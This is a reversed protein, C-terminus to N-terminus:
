YRNVRGSIMLTPILWLVLFALVNVPALSNFAQVATLYYGLALGVLSAVVSLIASTRVTAHLRRSGVIAEAYSEVSDRSLLATLTSAHELGPETLEIRREIPPYEMREVPLKLKQRVMSPTVNFDRPVLVPILQAHLLSLVAPRVSNTKAYNFVFIGEVVGNISCFIANKAKVDQRPPVDMLRMFDATGVMVREGRIIGSLGGAEHCKFDEVQRYFGGHIRVQNDFQDALGSGSTRILSAACGVLKELSIKGCVKLGNIQVTGAPFLDTDSLLVGADGAASYAGPWGAVAAGARELRRTLRLWPQGFCLLSSLPSAAILIVSLCWLFQLPRGRGVSSLFAFLFAALLVIPAVRRQILEAGNPEQLQAGFDMTDGQEKVFTDRSMWLQEDKTIRCPEQAFAAQRCARYNALKRDYAGWTLCLLILTAPACYPTPGERGLTCYVVADLVTVVVATSAVTHLTLLGDRLSAFGMWRVELSFVIAWGLLLLELAALLLPPQRLPAFLTLNTCEAVTLYSEALTLLLLLLVRRNMFNMGTFFIRALRQPPIDKAQPRVRKPRPKRVPRPARPEEVDTGPIYREAMDAEEDETAAQSFMSDAFADARARWQSLRSQRVPPEEEPPQDAWDDEDDERQPEVPPRPHYRKEPTLGDPRHTEVDEPFGAELLEPPLEAGTPEVWASPSVPTRRPRQEGAPADPAEDSPMARPRRDAPKKRKQTRRPPLPPFEDPPTEDDWAVPSVSTPPPAEAPADDVETPPEEEAPEAAPPEEVPSEEEAPSTEPPEEAPPAPPAGKPPATGYVEALIDEVSEEAAEVGALLDNLEFLENNPKRGNEAM